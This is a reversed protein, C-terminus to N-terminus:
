KAKDCCELAKHYEKMLVHCNAKKQYAKISNPDIEIAKECDKIASPFEM